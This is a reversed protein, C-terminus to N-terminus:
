LVVSAFNETLWNRLSMLSLGFCNPTDFWSPGFVRDVQDEQIIIKNGTKLLAHKLEEHQLIRLWAINSITQQRVNSWNKRAYQEAPYLAPSPSRLASVLEAVSSFLLQCYLFVFQTNFISLPDDPGIIHLGDGTTRVLRGSTDRFWM